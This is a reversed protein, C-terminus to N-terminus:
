KKLRELLMAYGERGRYYDKLSYWENPAHAKSDEAAWAMTISEVGLKDLFISTAPVSGGARTIVPEKGYLETLVDKVAGYVPDSRDVSYPRASGPLRVVEVTAGPPCHKECHARLLDVINAPDQDAVLRCTIKLHAESPTVTKVGEGQFGGWIGNLDLTPRSWQRERASYGKEGWLSDIGLKRKEEAEDIPLLAIEAREEDTLARVADYFGEVQVRGDKDHFSAALQVMSQVANPVWAGYGGSHLDTNATKLNVQVGGLGKLSVGLSPTDASYQGGDASIVADAKLFDLNADIIEGLHPSGIEEEGEFIFSVNIPPTGGNANAVAEVGQIATLLNGKMDSSGRAVLVDGNVSPEFPPTKWLDLPEAPQVDYHGYILITPQDDAVHWRGLVSPHGSSEAIKVEPVGARQLRDAVWEATRRIDDTHEPETSVSPISLLTKLEDLHAQEHEKLGDIWNSTTM